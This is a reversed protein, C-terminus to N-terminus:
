RCAGVLAAARARAHQTLERATETLCRLSSVEGAWVDAREAYARAAEASWDCDAALGRATAAADDLQEGLLDLEHAVIALQAAADADRVTCTIETLM